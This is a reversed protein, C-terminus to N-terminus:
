RRTQRGKQERRGGEKTSTSWRGYDDDLRGDGERRQRPDEIDGLRLVKKGRRGKYISYAVVEGVERHARGKNTSNTYSSERGAEMQLQRARKRGNDKSM